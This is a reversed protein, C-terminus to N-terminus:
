KLILGAGRIDKVVYDAGSSKLQESNDLGSLVGIVTLKLEKGYIVDNETDTLFYCRIPKYEDLFSRIAIRKDLNTEIFDFVRTNDGIQKLFLDKNKRRTILATIYGYDKLEKIVEFAGDFFRDLAVYKEKEIMKEREIACQEIIANRNALGKPVLFRQLMERQSNKGLRRMAMISNRDPCPIGQMSLVDEYTKHFRFSYDLLVGDLDFIVANREKSNSNM